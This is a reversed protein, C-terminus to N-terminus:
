TFLVDSDGSRDHDEDSSESDVHQTNSSNDNLKM